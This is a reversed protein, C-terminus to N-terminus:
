SSLLSTKFGTRLFLSGTRGNERSGVIMAGDPAPALTAVPPSIGLAKVPMRRLSTGYRDLVHLEHNLLLWVRGDSAQALATPGYLDVVRRSAWNIAIVVGLTAALVVLLITKQRDTLKSTLM